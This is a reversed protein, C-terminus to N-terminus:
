LLADLNLELKEGLWIAHNTHDAMADGTEPHVFAVLGDRNLALWPIIEGFLEPAFAVQYSWCPHPGIPRDHWRGLRIRLAFQKSLAERLRAAKEKTTADYYIHVHFGSITAIQPEVM